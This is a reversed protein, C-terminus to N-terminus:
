EAARPQMRSCMEVRVEEKRMCRRRQWRREKEGGSLRKSRFSFVCQLRPVVRLTRQVASFFLLHGHYQLRNHAVPVPVEKERPKALLLATLLDNLLTAWPQPKRCPQDSWCPAPCIRRLLARCVFTPVRTEQAWGGEGAMLLLLPVM